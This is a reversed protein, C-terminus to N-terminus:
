FVNNNANNNDNNNNNNNSYSKRTKCELKRQHDKVPTESVALWRLNRPSKETNQVIETIRDIEIPRSIELKELGRELSKPIPGRADIVVRILNVRM